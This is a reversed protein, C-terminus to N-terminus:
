DTIHRRRTGWEDDISVCLRAQYGEWSRWCDMELTSDPNHHGIQCASIYQERLPALWLLRSSSDDFHQELLSTTCMRRGCVSSMMRNTFSYAPIKLDSFDVKEGGVM